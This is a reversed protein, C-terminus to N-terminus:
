PENIREMQYIPRKFIYAKAKVVGQLICDCDNFHGDIEFVYGLGNYSGSGDGHATSSVLIMFLPKNHLAFVTVFDMSFICIWIILVILVVRRIKKIM